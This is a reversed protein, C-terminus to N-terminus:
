LPAFFRLDRRRKNDTQRHRILSFRANNTNRCRFRLCNLLSSCCSSNPSFCRGRLPLRVGRPFQLCNGRPTRVETVCFRLFFGGAKRGSTINANDIKVHLRGCVITSSGSSLKQTRSPFLHVRLGILWSHRPKSKHRVSHAAATEGRLITDQFSFVAKRAIVNEFTKLAQM